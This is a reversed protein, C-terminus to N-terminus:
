EADDAEIDGLERFTAEYARLCQELARESAAAGAADTPVPISSRFVFRKDDDRFHEFPGLKGGAYGVEALEEEILEDLKDGTHLLDAEVSHSLWRDPTVLSIWWRGASIELRYAAPAASAKVACELRNGSVSVAGFDGSRRAADAIRELVAVVGDATTAM